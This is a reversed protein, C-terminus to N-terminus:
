PQTEGLSLSSGVLPTTDKKAAILFPPSISKPDTTKTQNPHDTIKQIPNMPSFGSPPIVQSSFNSINNTTSNPSPDIQNITNTLHNESLEPPLSALCSFFSPQGTTPSINSLNNTTFISPKLKSIKTPPQLEPSTPNPPIETPSPRPAPLALVHTIRSVTSQPLNSSSAFIVTNPITQLLSPTSTSIIPEPAVSTVPLSPPLNFKTTAPLTVDSCVAQSPPSVQDIKSTDKQAPVWITNPQPVSKKATHDKQVPKWQATPCHSQLHGLQNCCPSTPPKWPYEVPIPVVSGDDREIEVTSPLPKTCNARVKLHAVNINVMRITYEDTEVPDGILGAVHSLGQQHYLDFPVDRLHAWLPISKMNPTKQAVSASWQAVYFLSNGIHWIEQEVVKGRIHDNPIRVLMSRDKPRLHIELKTGRGWIHTLVSQIHGYSPTKGM